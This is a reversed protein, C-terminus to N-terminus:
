CGQGSAVEDFSRYKPIMEGVSDDYDTLFMLCDEGDVIGLNELSVDSVFDADRGARRSLV